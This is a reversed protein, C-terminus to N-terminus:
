AYRPPLRAPKLDRSARVVLEAERANSDKVIATWIISILTIALASLGFICRSRITSPLFFTAQHDVMPM